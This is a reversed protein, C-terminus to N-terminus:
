HWSVHEIPSQAVVTCTCVLFDVRNEEVWRADFQVNRKVTVPSVLCHFLIVPGNRVKGRAKMPRDMGNENDHFPEARLSQKGSQSGPDGFVMPTSIEVWDKRVGLM